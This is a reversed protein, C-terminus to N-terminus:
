DHRLAQLPDLHAARRAPLYCAIGAVALLLLPLGIFSAPDAARVGYLLSSLAQALLFAIPLGIALGLVTLLMGSRLVLALVNGTQAGMSMRIGIEHTRESVSYSMVGFVGVSALVLAIVGLVAMMTAVYAIGVISETIVKDMPKINYLPLNADVTAIEARAASVFKLPDSATRLVVTTYYPPAQRFSRYITPVDDKVIWSYHVDNVVGVVTMWENDAEANGPTKIHRGLPNEGPFYRRALSESIVAVRPSEAGDTDSLLRGDRLAINLTNFYNPTTTEMIATRTEGREMPPRGQIAFERENIGGGDAYPVYTVLSAGQVGSVSGLRRMIQENFNLRAAPQAYQVEPLSFNLTLLTQPAYSENVSLLGKFGKVMLGAGVLLVLALAVEAVVLAGRLRHRTRSVSSGRGGEKLTEAINARSGLLSPAIGSIVGSLVAITLAFLFANADLRITKWGAVFRAVDPPMHALIMQIDWQALFLGLAAGGLSLLISEILLQRVIRWRSGGLATRVALESTRGTIRAFQVNAVDACAILLVFGVAVMLLVTYQRTLTGTIFQRLPQPRLRWAKNTDPYIQAERESISRMEAAAASFSVGPKLRGLVWLRRNDRGLREKTTLALPIWAEAPMPFDFGKKMVGVVNFSKGDVKIVRKLINPDSAYRQEWLGYSLIIEQNRGPEEEEPLFTRGLLPQVGIMPFFNATVQFDQVKQAERDGTLNVEDWVYAALDDFSHAEQKWDLYTAPAVPTLDQPGFGAGGDQSSIRTDVLAVFRDSNEFPVPHILFAEALSFIAANAGIGLALAVVCVMTAIRHKLLMRLGFRVDQWITRM